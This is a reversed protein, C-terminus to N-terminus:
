CESGNEEKARRLYVPASGAELGEQTWSFHYPFYVGPRTPFRTM